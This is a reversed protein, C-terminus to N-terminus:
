QRYFFVGARLLAHGCVNPADGNVVILWTDAWNFPVAQCSDLHIGVNSMLAVEYFLDCFDIKELRSYSTFFQGYM